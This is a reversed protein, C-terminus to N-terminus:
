ELLLKAPPEQHQFLRAVQNSWSLAARIEPLAVLTAREGRTIIDIPDVEQLLGFHGVDPRILVEPKENALRLESVMMSTIEISRLFIQFAQGIRLRAFQDLIPKPIPSSSPLQFGPLCGWEERSPTLCVAIVPLPPALWRAVSVPVPDLAGGDVLTANAIQRPPFVGPVACSALVAELLSGKALIVEQNSNLDVATCAFPIKLNEICLNGLHEELVKLGGSFGILSPGDAPDRDFFRPNKLSRIVEGFEQSSHGAAILSGIIAGASTGAVAGIAIGEDELVRLVGIHAMGKFGGGGLALSIEAM